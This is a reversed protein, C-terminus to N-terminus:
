AAMGTDAIDIDATDSPRPTHRAEGALAARHANIANHLLAFCLVDLLQRRGGLSMARDVLLSRKLQANWSEADNRLGYLRDFDPEGEAIVRVADATKHDTDGALGHPTVWAPFPDTPCPVEYAVNFHYRGSARRPRKVQRRELRALVVPKGEQDLGIESVAGDVAALQHTCPGQPTDHEWTGLTHWRGRSARGKRAATKGSNHVKNIVVVGLSTMLEDIHVGRMAGDYVVAQIGSGATTHLRRLAGVATDAELGPREVRDVALVVRQYPHDGRAYLAVFNQGHVPGAHGHYDAADPDFRRTPADVESGDADLYTVKTKGTAPDTDRKAAPPRYLPRIVTGDGYVVRSRDPHSLSGPGSPNLLGLSRAQAVAAQTFREQLQEQIDPDTLYRDRAYRFTDWRPPRPGPLTDVLDPHEAAVAAVTDRVLQWTTPDSLETQVRNGSRFLRALVGYGLVLYGPHHSPRGVPREAPILRGLEYLTTHSFVAQIQQNLTLMQPAPRLRPRPM